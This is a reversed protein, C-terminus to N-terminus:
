KPPTLTVASVWYSMYCDCSRNAPCVSPFNATSEDIETEDIYSAPLKVPCDIKVTVVQQHTLSVLMTSGLLLALSFKM